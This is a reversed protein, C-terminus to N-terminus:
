YYKSFRELAIGQVTTDESDKLVNVGVLWDFQYPIEMEQTLKDTSYNLM